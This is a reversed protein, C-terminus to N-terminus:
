ALLLWCGAGSLMAFLLLVGACGAGGAPATFKDPQEERLRVELAEVFDKAEKLGLGSAERYLKIAGIKRGAYLESCIEERIEPTLDDPM